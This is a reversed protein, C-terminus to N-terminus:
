HGPLKHGIAAVVPDPVVDGSSSDVSHAGLTRRRASSSAVVLLAWTAIKTLSSPEHLREPARIRTIANPSPSEIAFTTAVCVPM